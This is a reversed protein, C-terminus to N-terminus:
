ERFGEKTLAVLDPGTAVLLSVAILPREWGALDIWGFLHLAAVVSTYALLLRTM